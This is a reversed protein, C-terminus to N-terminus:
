PLFMKVTTAHNEVITIIIVLELHNSPFGPLTKKDGDKLAAMRIGSLFLLAPM